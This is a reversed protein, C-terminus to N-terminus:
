GSACKGGSEQWLLSQMWLWAGCVDADGIHTIASVQYISASCAFIIDQTWSFRPAALGGLIMEREFQKFPLLQLV